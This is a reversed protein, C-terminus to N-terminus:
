DGELKKIRKEFEKCDQQIKFIADNHIAVKGTFQGMLDFVKCSACQGNYFMKEVMERLTYEKTGKAKPL